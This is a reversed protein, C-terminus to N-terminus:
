PRPYLKRRIERARWQDYEDWFQRAQNTEPEVPEMIPASMYDSMGRTVEVGNETTTVLSTEGGRVVEQACADSVNILALLGICLAAVLSSVAWIEGRTVQNACKECSNKM